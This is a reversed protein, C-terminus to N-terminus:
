NGIVLEAPRIKGEVIRFARLELAESDLLSVIIYFADPYYANRVDTQSPYAPSSPHSHYIALLEKGQEEYDLQLLLSGPDVEYRVTRLSVPAVNRARHLDTVIGDRGFLLGCIEEPRGERAHAIIEEVVSQPLTITKKRDLTSM